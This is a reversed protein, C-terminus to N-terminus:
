LATKLFECFNNLSHEIDVNLSLMSLLVFDHVSLKMKEAFSIIYETEKENFHVICNNLELDM